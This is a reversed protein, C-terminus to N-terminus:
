VLAKLINFISKYIIIKTSSKSDSLIFSLIWFSLKGDAECTFDSTAFSGIFNLSIQELDLLWYTLMKNFKDENFKNLHKYNIYM